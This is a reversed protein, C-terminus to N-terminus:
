NEKTLRENEKALEELKSVKMTANKNNQKEIVRSKEISSEIQTEEMKSSLSKTSISPSLM